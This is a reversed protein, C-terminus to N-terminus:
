ARRIVLVALDDSLEGDAFSRADAAVAEALMQPPLERHGLALLLGALNLCAVGLVMYVVVFLPIDDARSPTDWESFREADFSM